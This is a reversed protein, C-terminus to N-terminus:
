RAHAVENRLSEVARALAVLEADDAPPEASLAAEVAAPDVAARAAAASAFAEPSSAVPVGLRESLNRRLDSRLMAAAADRRRGQQLLNGVALVLESGAIHVPQSEVIPRGLRRARWLAFVALAILLQWLGDKVRRSVLERLSREGSGPDSPEVFVVTGGDGRPAMLAVALVANDAEDLQANVFPGAGGLAVVAGDGVRRAVLYAGGEIPFCGIGDGPVRYPAGGSVDIAGVGSLARLPCSPEIVDDGEEEVGFLGEGGSAIAPALSSLPDAVVLTGGEEVWAELAETEPENLRDQLVVAVAGAPPAGGEIRVDAGFRELLLVLGRAGLPDTSRPDLPEGETRGRQALGLLVVGLALLVFPLARRLPSVASEATPASTATM